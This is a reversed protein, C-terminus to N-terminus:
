VDAQEVRGFLQSNYVTLLPEAMPLHSLIGGNIDAM